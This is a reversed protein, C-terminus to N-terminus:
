GLACLIFTHFREVYAKTKYDFCTVSLFLMPQKLANTINSPFSIRHKVVISLPFRAFKCQFDLVEVDNHSISYDCAKIRKREEIDLGIFQRSKRWSVKIVKAQSMEGVVNGERQDNLIM